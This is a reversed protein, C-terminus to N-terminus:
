GEGSVSFHGRVPTRVTKVTWRVPGSLEGDCDSKRYVGREGIPSRSKYGVGSTTMHGFACSSGSMKHCTQEHDAAGGAGTSQGVSVHGRDTQRPQEHQGSQDAADSDGLRQGRVPRIERRQREVTGQRTLSGHQRQAIVQCCHRRIVPHRCIHQCCEELVVRGGANIAASADVKHFVTKTLGEGRGSCRAALGDARQVAGAGEVEGAQGPGVAANIQIKVAVADSALLPVVAGADVCPGPVDITAGALEAILFM